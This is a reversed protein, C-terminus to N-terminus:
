NKRVERSDKAGIQQAAARGLLVDSPDRNRVGILDFADSEDQKGAGPFDIIEHPFQFTCNEGVEGSSFIRSTKMRGGMM